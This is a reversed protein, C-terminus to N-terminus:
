EVEKLASHQELVRQYARFSGIASDIAAPPANQELMRIIQPLVGAAPSKTVRGDAQRKSLASRLAAVPSPSRRAADVDALQSEQSRALAMRRKALKHIEQTDGRATCDDLAVMSVTAVASIPVDGRAGPPLFMEFTRTTGPQFAATMDPGLLSSVRDITASSARTSGDVYSGEVSLTVATIIRKSLNKLTLHVPIPGTPQPGDISTSVVQVVSETSTLAAANTTLALVAAILASTVIVARHPVNTHGSM